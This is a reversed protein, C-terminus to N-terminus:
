PLLRSPAKLGIEKLYKEGEPGNLKWYSLRSSGLLVADEGADSSWRILRYPPAAEFAYTVRPGGEQAVTWTVVKFAGAPVKM